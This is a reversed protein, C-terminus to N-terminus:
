VWRKASFAINYALGRPCRNIQYVSRHRVRAQRCTSPSSSQASACSCEAPMMLRATLCTLMRTMGEARWQGTLSMSKPLRGGGGGGRAAPAARGGGVRGGGARRGGARLGGEARGGAAQEARPARELAHTRARARPPRQHPRRAHARARTRLSVQRRRELRADRLLREVREVRGGTRALGEKGRVWWGMVDVWGDLRPGSCWRGGAARGREGVCVRARARARARVPALASCRILTSIGSLKWTKQAAVVATRTRKGQKM